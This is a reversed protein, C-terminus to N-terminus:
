AHGEGGGGLGGAHARQAAGLREVVGLELAARAGQSARGPLRGGGRRRGQGRQVVVLVLSDLEPAVVRQPGVLRQAELDLEEVQAHEEFPRHAHELHLAPLRLLECLFQSVVRGHEVEALASQGGAAQRGVQAKRAEPEVVVGGRAM